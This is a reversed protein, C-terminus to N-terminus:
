FLPFKNNDRKHYEGSFFDKFYSYFTPIVLNSSIKKNITCCYTSYRYIYIYIYVYMKYIYIHTHTHTHIDIYRYIDTYIHIYIYM